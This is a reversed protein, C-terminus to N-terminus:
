VVAWGFKSEGFLKYFRVTELATGSNYFPGHWYLAERVKEFKSMVPRQGSCLGLEKLLAVIMKKQGAKMNPMTVSHRGIDMNIEEATCYVVWGKGYRSLLIEVGDYWIKRARGDAKWRYLERRGGVALKTGHKKLGFLKELFRGENDRRSIDDSFFIFNEGSKVERLVSDVHEMLDFRELEKNINKFYYYTFFHFLDMEGGYLHVGQLARLLSVM